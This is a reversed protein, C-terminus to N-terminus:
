ERPGGFVDGGPARDVAAPRPADPRREVPAPPLEGRERKERTERQKRKAVDVAKPAFVAIAAALFPAVPAVARAKAYYPLLAPAGTKQLVRSDTPSLKMEPGVLFELLASVAPLVVGFLEDMEQVPDVAVAAVGPAGAEGAGLSGGLATVRTELERVRGALERRKARSIRRDSWRDAPGDSVPGSIPPRGPAPPTPGHIEAKMDAPTMSAPDPLLSAAAAQVDPVANAPPAEPFLSAVDSVDDPTAPLETAPEAAPSEDPAGRPARTRSRKKTM